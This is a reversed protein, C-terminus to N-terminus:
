RAALHEALARSVDRPPGGGGVRAAAMGPVSAPQFPQASELWGSAAEADLAAHFMLEDGFGPPINALTRETVGFTSALRARGEAADVGLLDVARALSSGQENVAVLERAALQPVEAPAPLPTELARRANIIPGWGSSFLGRPREDSSLQLVRRFVEALKIGSPSYRALLQDRGHHALWLAAVGATLATAFSTGSSREVGRENGKAKWVDEAPASFDVGAGFSSGAWIRRDADCGSMCIVEAYRGPWVVLPGTYNGAAAITIIDHNWASHIARHLAANALWGLSISIVHCGRDIARYISDRLRAAGSSLLVPEPRLFGQEAVRLPVLAARPAAGMLEGAETSALVSATGTGHFGADDLPDATDRVYDYGSAIDLTASSEVLEAHRTYGSDPHAVRIGEGLAKGGPAPQLRWADRVEILDLAWTKPASRRAAELVHAERQAAANPLEAISEVLWSPEAESVDDRARLEHVLQWARSPALEGPPLLDYTGPEAALPRMQWAGDLSALLTGADGGRMRVVIAELRTPVLPALGPPLPASAAASAEPGGGPPPAVPAQVTLGASATGVELRVRVPVTVSGWRGPREQESALSMPARFCSSLLETQIAEGSTRELLDRVISSVRVGENAVWRAVQGDATLEINGSADLGPVGSHHLAALQWQDNCVPAGSAGPETDAGYHLYDDFVDLVRSERLAVQQARGGSHQLVNVAEGVVAKGSTPILPFWGRVAAQEADYSPGLAVLTYDLRASTTFFVDPALPFVSSGAVIELDEIFDLELVSLALEPAPLVHHNTLVLRDSVLFGTGYAQLQGFGDRVHIRGVARSARAGRRLFSSSIREDRQLIRELLRDAVHESPAPPMRLGLRRARAFIRAPEDVNAGGERRGLSQLDRARRQRVGARRGFRSAAGALADRTDIVSV